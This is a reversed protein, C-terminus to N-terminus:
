KTARCIQRRWAAPTTGFQTRFLRCFHAQDSFGCALAIETLPAASERMMGCARELRRVLVYSHPAMGFSRRFVRAFYSTSLGACRSLATVRLTGHLNAEIFGRLRTIQWPALGGCTELAEMPEARLLRVAEALSTRALERDHELGARARELLPLLSGAQQLRTMGPEARIKEVVEGITM